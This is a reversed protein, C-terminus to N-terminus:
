TDEKNVSITCNIKVDISKIIKLNYWGCGSDITENLKSFVDDFSVSEHIIEFRRKGYTSTGERCLYYM